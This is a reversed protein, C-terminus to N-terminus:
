ARYVSQASVIKRLEAPDQVGLTSATETTQSPRDSTEPFLTRGSQGAPERGPPPTSGTGSPPSAKMTKASM